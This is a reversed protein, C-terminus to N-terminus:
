SGQSNALLSFLAADVRRGAHRLYMRKVGEREFGVRALVQESAENGIRVHAELRFIGNAFAHEAIAAVARTAVGRGRAEAFLWYGVEVTDRMPDFHHIAAGGLIEGTNSDEIVYPSLLGQARMAPIQEGLAARLMDAGVAPLGAEGGVEPDLFAPAIADIDADILLRVILEDVRLEDPFAYSSMRMASPDSGSV